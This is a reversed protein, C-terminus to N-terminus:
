ENVHLMNTATTLELSFQDYYLLEIIETIERTNYTRILGAFLPVYCHAAQSTNCMWLDGDIKM